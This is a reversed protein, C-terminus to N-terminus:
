RISGVARLRFTTPAARSKVAMPRAPLGEGGLVRGRLADAEAKAEPILGRLLFASDTLSARADDCFMAFYQMFVGQYDQILALGHHDGVLKLLRHACVQSSVSILFARHEAIAARKPDAMGYFELLTQDRAEGTIGHKRFYRVLATRHVQELHVSRLALIQRQREVRKAVSSMRTDHWGHWISYRRPDDVVQRCVRGATTDARAAGRRIATESESMLRYQTLYIM